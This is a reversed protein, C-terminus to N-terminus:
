ESESQWEQLDHDEPLYFMGDTAKVQRNLELAIHEPLIDLLAAYADETIGEDSDLLRVALNKLKAEDM